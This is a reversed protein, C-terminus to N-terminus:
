TFLSNVHMRRFIFSLLLLIHPSHYIGKLCCHVHHLAGFFLFNRLTGRLVHCCMEPCRFPHQYSLGHFYALITISTVIDLRCLIMCFILKGILTRHKFGHKQQIQIIEHADTSGKAERVQCIMYPSMPEKPDSVEHLTPDLWGHSHLVQRLYDAEHVMIYNRTQNIIAAMYKKMLGIHKMEKFESDLTEKVWRHHVESSSVIAFDDVQRMTIGDSGDHPCKHLIFSPDIVSQYGDLPKVYSESVAKDFMEGAEPHGQLSKEVPVVLGVPIDMNLREKYYESMPADAIAFLNKCPSKSYMFDNLM